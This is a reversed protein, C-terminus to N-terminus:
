GLPNKGDRNWAESAFKRDARERADALEEETWTGEEADAWTRLSEEFAGVAERRDEVGHERLSTVRASFEEPSTRPDAFVSLHREPLSEFTISGHQIVADKRRYQANGSVKRGGAVVDHAPHLERLYCAPRHIEPQSETAFGAEVGLRDFADLIPECLLEYSEMLNGPLEAAPAVISYSIDGWSDHYIGGGGTPRRTVSIEERECFAWDVTAPDQQYGLSLTSPEWRYVRLTRPGGAAATAAAVEDLAMNTPGEHSEERVLRWERDTREM